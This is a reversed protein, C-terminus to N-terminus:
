PLKGAAVMRNFLIANSLWIVQDDYHASADAVSFRSDADSNELEDADDSPPLLQGAASHGGHGNHGHSLVVAPIGIAINSGSQAASLLTINGNSCLAFSAQAPLPDPTCGAYTAEAPLDAYDPDVRYSFRRGWGDLEAVGLTAWPLVGHETGQRCPPPRAVGADAGIAAPDAPCPLRGHILAHGMLAERAAELKQRTDQRAQQEIQGGLPLLMGGLLLGTITLVVALEVLTYGRATM